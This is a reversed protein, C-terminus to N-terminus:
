CLYLTSLPRGLMIVFLPEYGPFDVQQHSSPDTRHL